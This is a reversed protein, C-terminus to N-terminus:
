RMHWARRWFLELLDLALLGCRPTTDSKGRGLLTLVGLNAGKNSHFAWSVRGVVVEQAEAPLLSGEAGAYRSEGSEIKCGILISRALRRQGCLPM